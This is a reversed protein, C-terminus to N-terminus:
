DIEPAFGEGIAVINTETSGIMGRYDGTKDGRVIDRCMYHAAM